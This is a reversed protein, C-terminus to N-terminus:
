KARNLLRELGPRDTSNGGARDLFIHDKRVGQSKLAVIQIDLKQQITSVRAYGLQAM